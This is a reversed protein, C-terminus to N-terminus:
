PKASKEPALLDIQEKTQDIVLVLQNFHWSGLSKAAVVYVTGSGKPGSVPIQLDAQGSSNSLSISGLVYFSDKIPSGLAVAAAPSAQVQALAGTYADSSKMIGFILAIFGVIGAVGVAVMVPVVWKWNREM